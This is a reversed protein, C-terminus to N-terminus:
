PRLYAFGFLSDAPLGAATHCYVDVLLEPPRSYSAVTGLFCYRGPTGSSVQVSDWFKGIGAYVVRYHGPALRAITPTEGTSSWSHRPDVAPAAPDGTATLYAAAASADHHLGGGQVYSLLWPSDIRDGTGIAYCGVAIELGDAVPTTGEPHCRAPAGTGYPTVQVYGTDEPFGPGHVTVTYRGTGTRRVDDLRGRSNFTGDNVVPALDGTGGPRDYRVTAYPTGGPTAAAFFITFWWDVPAGHQDFCRVRVTEDPGAQGYGAVACTRGRYTTRYATVHPVGNAAGVDPLRVEYEGTGTRTVSARNGATAPDRRGTTWQVHNLTVPVGIPPTAENMYAYGWRPAPPTPTGAAVLAEFLARVDRDSEEATPGPEGTPPPAGSVANVGMRFRIHEWDDFGEVGNQYGYKTPYHTGVAEVQEDGPDDPPMRPAAHTDCVGNRGAIIKGHFLEDDVQPTAKVKDKPTQGAVSRPAVCVQFGSMVDVDVVAGPGPVGGASFDWDLGQRADGVRLTRAPDWWAAVSDAVAGVGTGEPLAYRGPAPLPQRVLTPLDTDSYDIHSISEIVARQAPLDFDTGAPMRGLTARWASFDPIGITSYRYNMASLYNPKFNADDGGGHKLGLVHGFEHVFTAAQTRDTPKNVTGLTVVFDDGRPGLCCTGSSTSGNHTYGWLNYYFLGDRSPTFHDERLREFPTKGDAPDRVNLPAERVEPTVRLGNSMDVLLQVGPSAGWPYPCTQPAEVPAEDFMDVAEDMAARSPRDSADATEFWDVEVALTKRCPDAGHEPLWRDVGDETVKGFLEIRDTLGDGDTDLAPDPDPLPFITTQWIQNADKEFRHIVTASPPMDVYVRRTDLDVLRVGVMDWNDARWDEARNEHEIILSHTLQPLTLCPALRARWTWHVWALDFTGGKHYRVGAPLERGPEGDADEYVYPDPRGDGNWDDFILKQGGLWVHETSDDRLGDEGTSVTLAVRCVANVDRQTTSWTGSGSAGREFRHVPGESAPRDFYVRRPEDRDVIRLGQLDWDDVSSSHNVLFGKRLAADTLCQPLRAHWTFTTHPRDGTGGHHFPEGGGPDPAGDGDSDEFVLANASDLVDPAPDRLSVTIWTDDRIGDAGTTLTFTVRCIVRDDARAPPGLAAFLALAALVALM